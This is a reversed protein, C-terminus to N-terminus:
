VSFHDAAQESFLRPRQQKIQAAFAAGAARGAHQVLDQTVNPHNAAIRVQLVIQEVVGFAAFQQDFGQLMAQALDVFAAEPVVEPAVILHCTQKVKGAFRDLRKLLPELLGCLQATLYLFGQTLQSLM